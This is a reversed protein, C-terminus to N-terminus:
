ENKILIQDLHQKANKLQSSLCEYDDDYWEKPGEGELVSQISRFHCSFANFCNVAEDINEVLDKNQPDNWFGDDFYIPELKESLADIQEETTELERLLFYSDDWTIPCFDLSDIKEIILELSHKVQRILELYDTTM